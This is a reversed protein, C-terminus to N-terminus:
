QDSAAVGLVEFGLARAAAALQHDHTAVLLDGRQERWLVATTLHLADLTGLSTPFPNAARSLIQPTLEVRDMRSLLKLIAARRPALQAETIRGARWLRDLSRLCEVEALASTVTTALARWERLPNPEGLVLRLLVSSDVYVTSGALRKRLARTEAAKAVSAARGPM